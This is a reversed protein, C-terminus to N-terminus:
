AEPKLRQHNIVDPMGAASPPSCRHRHAAAIGRDRACFARKQGVFRRGVNMKRAQPSVMALHLAELASKGV